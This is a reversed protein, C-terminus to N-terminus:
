VDLDTSTPKVRSLPPPASVAGRVCSELSYVVYGNLAELNFISLPASVTGM